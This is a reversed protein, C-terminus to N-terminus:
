NMAELLPYINSFLRSIDPPSVSFSNSHVLQNMSTVSLFRNPTTMETMAGYFKKRLEENKNNTTLHATVDKLLEALTKDNYKDVGKGDKKIKKLSISKEESYVKASIEFISRLLFCFAIPNDKVKLKLLENKLTVIKERNNGTPNFKRLLATIHKPNDLAHVKSSSANAGGGSHSLSQIITTTPIGNSKGTVSSTQTATKPNSQKGIPSNSSNGTTNTTAKTTSQTLPNIGYPIGFDSNPNRITPFTVQELGIDRLLEEFESLMKIKPYKKVLEDVTPIKMRYHLKRMAEELVTIPYEGGWREKQQGSLNRGHKLYKELVDLGLETANKVDRNHRARAVSNWGDRSAKEGKAHALSVIRNVKDIESLVYITCPVKLNEKKWATSINKIKKQISEPILLNDLNYLNHILKLAAIRRNGEKVTLLKGEKLIIINETLLYGDDILSEMVAFFRDPKIAIMAKIADVEKKQPTTRFNKLDLSLKKVELQETTPM